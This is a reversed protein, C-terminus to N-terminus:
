NRYHLTIQNWKFTLIPVQNQKGSYGWHMACCNTCLLHQSIQTLHFLEMIISYPGGFILKEISAILFSAFNTLILKEFRHFNDLPKYCDWSHKSLSFASDRYSCIKHLKVKGQKQLVEFLLRRPIIALTFVNLCCTSLPLISQCDKRWFDWRCLVAM